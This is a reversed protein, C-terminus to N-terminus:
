TLAELIEDMVSGIEMTVVESDSVVCFPEFKVAMVTAANAPTM